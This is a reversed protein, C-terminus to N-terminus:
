SCWKPEPSLELTDMDDMDLEESDDDASLADLHDIETNETDAETVIPGAMENLEKICAEAVALHQEMDEHCGKRRAEFYDRMAMVVTDTDIKVIYQEIDM